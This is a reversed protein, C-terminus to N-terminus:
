SKAHHAAMHATMALLATEAGALEKPPLTGFHDTIIEERRRIEVVEGDARLLLEKPRLRGNYSFGMAHGHAGTDHILLVDGVAVAPLRRDVAFKDMNECLSGVVDCNMLHETRSMPATIHHYAQQYLGPRMLASMSADVGVFQKWKSTRSVVRTVLAGHPGTVFRGCETMLGLDTRKPGFASRFAAVVRRGFAEIPFSVEEPRYPIGLGGGINIFELTIESDRELAVAIAFLREVNRVATDLDLENSSLMAHLGFRKAGGARADRYSRALAPLPVGFKAEKMRGLTACDRASEGPNVRFSVLEPINPLVELFSQDDLNIIAGLALAHRFEEVSTNNSTFFMEGGSAGVASALVLEPISSCDFGQGEEALIRLIAPNPLAKVAFYQRYELPDFAGRLLRASERIGTEDYIHFPTEHSQLILPLAGLLRNEFSKSIPM